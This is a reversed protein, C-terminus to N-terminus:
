EEIFAIFEKKSKEGISYKGDERIYVPLIDGPIGHSNLLEDAEGCDYDLEEIEIDYSGEEIIERVRSKMILCSSCWIASVRKMTM